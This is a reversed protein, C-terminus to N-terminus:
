RNLMVTAQCNHSLKFERLRLKRGNGTRMVVPFDDHSSKSATTM